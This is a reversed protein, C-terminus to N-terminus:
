QCNRQCNAKPMVNYIMPVLVFADSKLAPHKMQFIKPTESMASFVLYIHYNQLIASKELENSSIYFGDALNAASTAKVEIQRETGDEEYSLIDFGAGDEEQSIQKVRGALDTREAQILRQKELALVIAEGRDGVRRLRKARKEFDTKGHGGSGGKKESSFPPMETIFQSGKVADDLLPLSAPAGDDSSDDDPPHGFVDYLFRMYLAAPQDLLGPWTARYDMLARQMDAGCHFSGNLDLHAVFFKLHRESYIPAYKEPNYIFLLKGKFMPSLRNEVIAEL